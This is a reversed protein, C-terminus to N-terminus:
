MISYDHFRLQVIRTNKPTKKINIIVRSKNRIIKSYLVKQRSKRLIKCIAKSDYKAKWWLCKLQSNIINVCFFSWFWCEFLLSFRKNVVSSYLQICNFGNFPRSYRLTSVRSRNLKQEQRRNTDPHSLIADASCRRVSQM